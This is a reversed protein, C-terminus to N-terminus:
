GNRGIQRLERALVEVAGVPPALTQHDEGDLLGRTSGELPDRGVDEIGEHPLPAVQRQGGRAVRDPSVEEGQPIPEHGADLALSIPGLLIEVGDVLLEHVLDARALEALQGESHEDRLGVVDAEGARDGHGRGLGRRRGRVLLEQLLELDVLGIERLGVGADGSELRGVLEELAFELGEFAALDHEGLLASFAGM